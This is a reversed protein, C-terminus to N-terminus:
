AEMSKITNFKGRWCEEVLLQLRTAAPFSKRKGEGALGKEIVHFLKIAQKKYTQYFSQASVEWWNSLIVFHVNTIVSSDTNLIRAVARWEAGQDFDESGSGHSERCIAAWLTMIGGVREEYKVEDEWKDDSRKWGMRKRGEETDISCSYGLIFCCKKVFRATLFYKFEPYRKLFVNTLLALPLAATPKVTVEAEAQSILAKSIFNLIWQYAQTDSRTSEIVELIENCVTQCSRVSNSLQGFKVNVRRKLTNLAKKSEKNQNIPAVVKEKINVIEARWKEVEKAVSAWNTNGSKRKAEEDALKQKRLKEEQEKKEKLRAEEKKKKLEEERKLEEQRALERRREEEEKRKKEEQQRREEEQKRRLEEQKRRLEEAERVKREHEIIREITNDQTSQAVKFSAELAQLLSETEFASSKNNSEFDAIQSKRNEDGKQVESYEEHENSRTFYNADDNHLHEVKIRRVAPQQVFVEESEIPLGFRM